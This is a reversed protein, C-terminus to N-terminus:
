EVIYPNSSTGDGSSFVTDARLNIVPKVGNMGHVSSGESLNGNPNVAFMTAMGSNNNFQSPSMTWYQQGTYLYYNKNDSGNVGGAYAAEDATILGIPNNLKKNGVNAGSVTFYDNARDTCKLSPMKNSYLRYSAAYYTTVTGTGGAGNPAGVNTTSSGRDNCFGTNTDIKSRYSALNSSYWTDLTKKITSETGFGHAQGNTYMFGVYMNNNYLDNFTSTGTQRSADSIGNGIATTGDYIM